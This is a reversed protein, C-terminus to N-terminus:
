EFLQEFGKQASENDEKNSERKAQRDLAERNVKIITRGRTVMEEEEEPLESIGGSMHKRLQKKCQNIVDVFNKKM